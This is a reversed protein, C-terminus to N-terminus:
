VPIFEDDGERIVLYRGHQSLTKLAHPTTKPIFILHLEEITEKHSGHLLLFSGDLVIVYENLSPHYHCCFGQGKNMRYEIVYQAKGKAVLNFLETFVPELKVKVVM